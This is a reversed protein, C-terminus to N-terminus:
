YRSGKSLKMCRTYDVSYIHISHLQLTQVGEVAEKNVANDEEQNFMFMEAEKLQILEQKIKVHNRQLLICGQRFNDM